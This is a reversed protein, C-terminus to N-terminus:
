GDVIEFRVAREPAEDWVFEVREGTDADFYERGKKELRAKAESTKLSRPAVEDVDEREEAWALAGPEDWKIRDREKTWRLKPVAIMPLTKEGEHFDTMYEALTAEAFADTRAAEKQYRELWLKLQALNRDYAAQAEALAKRAKARKRLVWEALDRAKTPDGAARDRINFYSRESASEDQWLRLTGDDDVTVTEDDYLGLRELEAELDELGAGADLFEQLHQEMEVERQKNAHAM